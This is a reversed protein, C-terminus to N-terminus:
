SALNRKSDSYYWPIERDDTLMPDASMRLISAVLAKRRLYSKDLAKLLEEGSNIMGERVKKPMTRVTEEICMDPLDDLFDISGWLTDCYLTM